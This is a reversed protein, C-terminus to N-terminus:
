QVPLSSSASHGHSSVAPSHIYGIQLPSIHASKLKCSKCLYICPLALAPSLRCAYVLYLLKLPIMSSPLPSAQLVLEILSYISSLSPYPYLPVAEAAWMLEMKFIRLQIPSGASSPWYHSMMRVFLSSSEIALVCIWRVSQCKSTSFEKLHAETTPRRYPVQSLALAFSAHRAFPMELYRGHRISPAQGM